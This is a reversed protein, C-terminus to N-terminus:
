HMLHYVDLGAAVVFILVTSGVIKFAFFILEEDWGRKKKYKEKHKKSLRHIM